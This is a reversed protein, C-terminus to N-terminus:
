VLRRSFPCCVRRRRRRLPLAFPSSPSCKRLPPLSAGPGSMRRIGGCLSPSPSCSPAPRPCSQGSLRKARGHRPAGAAGFSSSRSRARVAARVNRIAKSRPSLAGRLRGWAATKLPLPQFRANSKLRLQRKLCPIYELNKHAERHEYSSFDGILNRDDLSDERACRAGADRSAHLL